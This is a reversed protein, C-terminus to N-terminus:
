SWSGSSICVLHSPAAYSSKWYSGGFSRARVEVHPSQLLLLLQTHVEDRLCAIRADHHDSCLKGLCFCLWKRLAPM